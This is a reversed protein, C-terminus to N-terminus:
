TTLRAIGIIEYRNRTAFTAEFITRVIEKHKRM